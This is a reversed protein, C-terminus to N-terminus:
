SPKGKKLNNATFNVLGDSFDDTYV